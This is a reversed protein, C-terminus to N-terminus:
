GGLEQETGRSQSSGQAAQQDPGAETPGKDQGGACLRPTDGCPPLSLGDRQHRLIVDVQYVGDLLLDTLPPASSSLPPSAPAEPHSAM